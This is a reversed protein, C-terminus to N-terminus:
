RFLIMRVIPFFIISAVIYNEKWQDIYILIDRMKELFMLANKPFTSLKNFHVLLFYFFVSTFSM